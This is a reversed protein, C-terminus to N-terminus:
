TPPEPPISAAYIPALRRWEMRVAADSEHKLRVAAEAALDDAGAIRGFAWVAAGRVLPSPDDLARRAAAILEPSPQPVNGTAILM